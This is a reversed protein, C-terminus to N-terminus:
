HRSGTVPVNAPLARTTTKGMKTAAHNLVRGINQPFRRALHDVRRPQHGIDMQVAGQVVPGPGRGTPVIHQKVADFTNIAELADAAQTIHVRRVLAKLGLGAGGHQRM